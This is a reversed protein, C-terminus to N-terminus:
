NQCYSLILQNKLNFKNYYIYLTLFFSLSNIVFILLFCSNILYTFSNIVAAGPRQSTFSDSLTYTASSDTIPQLNLRYNNPASEKYEVGDFYKNDGVVSDPTYYGTYNTSPNYEVFDPTQEKDFEGTIEALPNYKTVTTENVDMSMIWAGLITGMLALM